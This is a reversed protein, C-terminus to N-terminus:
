KTKKKITVKNKKTSSRPAKPVLNQSLTKVVNEISPNLENREEPTKYEMKLFDFIDKETEFHTSVKEKTSLSTIGHENMTYGMDLAKQRMVTNFTKSGTFYLIAFPFEEPTTYLFDVRRTTQSSPIRAMVLCKSPGRSLVNVIIKQKILEDILSIFPRPTESTIIIDIDGSTEAGRRYSGVIEVKSFHLALDIKKLLPHPDLNQIANQEVKKLLPHPDLNQIANQEVKKLLPNFTSEIISKYEDIEKRPIRKLVDEYYKVGIKQVENLLHQNERLQQISTICQDVLEKAKKPGIGYVDTLINIPNNKEREIIELTGTKVYENLKEMITAGINPKNLLDNPKNIPNPYTM